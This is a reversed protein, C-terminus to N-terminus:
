LDSMVGNGHKIKTNKETTIPFPPLNIEIVHRIDPSVHNKLYVYM